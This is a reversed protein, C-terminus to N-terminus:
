NTQTKSTHEARTQRNTKGRDGPFVAVPISLVEDTNGVFRPAGASTKLLKIEAKHERRRFSILNGRFLETVSATRSMHTANSHCSGNGAQCHPKVHRCRRRASGGTARSRTLARRGGKYATNAAARTGTVELM